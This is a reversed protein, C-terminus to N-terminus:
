EAVMKSKMAIMWDVICFFTPVNPWSSSLRFDDTEQAKWSLLIMTNIGSLYSTSCDTFLASRDLCCCHTPWSTRIELSVLVHWLIKWWIKTIWITFWIKCFEDELGADNLDPSRQSVVLDGVQCIIIVVYISNGRVWHFLKLPRIVMFFRIGFHKHQYFMNYVLKPKLRASSILLSINGYM